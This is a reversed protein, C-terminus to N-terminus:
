LSTCLPKFEESVNETSWGGRVMELVRSLVPDRATWSKIHKALVPSANITNMPLLLEGPLPVKSTQPPLPLRSLSDANSHESGKKYEITYQYASLM